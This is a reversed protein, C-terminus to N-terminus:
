IYMNLNYKSLDIDEINKKVQLVYSSSVSIEDVEILLYFPLLEKDRALEGCIGVM